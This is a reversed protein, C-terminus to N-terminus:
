HCAKRPTKSAKPRTNVPPCNKPFIREYLEAYHRSMERRTMGAAELHAAANEAFRRRTGFEGALRDIAAELESPQGVNVLLGNVEHEIIEPIGGVRTGIAPKGLWLAEMLAMPAGEAYSPQVYIDVEQWFGTKDTLGGPMRVAGGLGQREIEHKLWQGCERDAEPGALILRLRPFTKHAAAFATLLDHQGKNWTLYGLNGITIAETPPVPRPPTGELGSHYIRRLKGRAWPFWRAIQARSADSAFVEQRCFALLFFKSAWALCTKLCKSPWPCGPPFLGATFSPVGHSTLIWLVGALCLPHLPSRWPLHGDFGHTGGHFHVLDYKGAKVQAVFLRTSMRDWKKLPISIRNELCRAVCEPMDPAQADPAALSVRYHAGLDCILWQVVKGVGGLNFLPEASVQLVRGSQSASPNEGVIENM